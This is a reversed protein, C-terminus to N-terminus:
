KEELKKTLGLRYSAGSDIVAQVAKLSDGAWKNKLSYKDLILAVQRGNEEIEYRRAEEARKQMERTLVSQTYKLEAEILNAESILERRTIPDYESFARGRLDEIRKAKSEREAQFKAEESRIYEEVPPAKYTALRYLNAADFYAGVMQSAAKLTDEDASFQFASGRLVALMQNNLGAIDSRSPNSRFAGEAKAALDVLKTLERRAREAPSVAPSAIPQTRKPQQRRKTQGSASVCLVLAFAALVTLTVSINKRM